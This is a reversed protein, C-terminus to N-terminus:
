SLAAPHEPFRMSKSFFELAPAAQVVHDVARPPVNPSATM